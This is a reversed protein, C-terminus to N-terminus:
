PTTGTRAAAREAAQWLDILRDRIETAKGQYPLTREIFAKLQEPDRLSEPRDTSRVKIMEKIAEDRQALEGLEALESLAAVLFSRAPRFNPGKDEERLANKLHKAAKQFHEKKVARDYTELVGLVYYAHGRYYDYFFPYNPDLQVASQDMRELAEKPKGQYILAHAELAYGGAFRPDIQTAERAVRIADHLEGKYLYVFGQQLLAQCLQARALEVATEASREAEGKSSAPTSSWALIWDQRHTASLMAHARSSTPDLTIARKFLVRARANDESTFKRYLALGDEFEWM